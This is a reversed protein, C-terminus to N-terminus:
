VQHFKYIQFWCLICNKEKSKYIPILNKNKPTETATSRSRNDSRVLLENGCVTQNKQTIEKIVKIVKDSWTIEKIGKIM